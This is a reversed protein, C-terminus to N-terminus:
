FTLKKGLTVKQGLYLLGNTKSCVIKMGPNLNKGIIEATKNFKNYVFIEMPAVKNAEGIVFIFTRGGFVKLADLSVTYIHESLQPISVWVKESPQFLWFSDQMIAKGGDVLTGETKILIIQSDKLGGTDELAQYQASRKEIFMNQPKVRVKKVTFAHVNTDGNKKIATWVYSGQDDKRLGRTPVWLPIDSMEPAKITRTRTYIKPLKKQAPTLQRKPVLFNKVSLEIYDTFIEQTKLWAPYCLTFGTPYVWFKNNVCLLDTLVDHLKVKVCVPDFVSLVLVSKDEFLSSGAAALVKEVIGSFPARLVRNELNSKADLLELRCVDYDSAAQLYDNEAEEHQRESFVHRKYLKEIRKLNLSADKLAQKAKKVKQDSINVIIKEKTDRAKALIDGQRIVKGNADTIKGRVAENVPAVYTLQVDSLFSLKASRSLGVIGPFLVNKRPSRRLLIYPVVQEMAPLAISLISLFGFCVCKFLKTKM